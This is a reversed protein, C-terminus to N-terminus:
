SARRAQIEVVYTAPELVEPAPKGYYYGQLFDVGM